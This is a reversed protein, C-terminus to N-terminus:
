ILNIKSHFKTFIGIEWVKRETVQSYFFVNRLDKHTIVVYQFILDAERNRNWFLEFGLSYKYWSSCDMMFVLIYIDPMKGLVKRCDTFPLLFEIKFQTIFSLRMFVGWSVRFNWSIDSNSCVFSSCAISRCDSLTDSIFKGAIQFSLSWFNESQYGGHSCRM